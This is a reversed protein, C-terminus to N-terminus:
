QNVIKSAMNINVQKSVMKALEKEDILAFIKESNDEIYKKAMKDLLVRELCTNWAGFSEWNERILEDIANKIAFDIKKELDIKLTLESM